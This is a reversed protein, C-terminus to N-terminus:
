NRRKRLMAAVGLGLAAMTMPEPVAEVEWGTIAGNNDGAANDSINLTYVGPTGTIISNLDTNVESTALVGTFNNSTAAYTGGAVATSANAAAAATWLSAGGTTFTYDAGTLATADSGAGASGFNSDEGFGSAVAVKALRNVLIVSGGPGTLTVKLDGIWTHKLGFLTVSLIDTVPGVLASSSSVGTVNNDTVTFGAGGFSITAQAGAVMSTALVLMSIRKM